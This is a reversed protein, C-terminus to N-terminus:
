LAIFELYSLDFHVYRYVTRTFMNAKHKQMPFCVRTGKVCIQMAFLLVANRSVNKAIQKAFYHRSRLEIGGCHVLSFFAYACTINYHISAFTKISIIPRIYRVYNITIDCFIINTYCKSNCAITLKYCQM